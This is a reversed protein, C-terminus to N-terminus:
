IGTKAILNGNKAFVKKETLNGRKWHNSEKWTKTSRQVIRAVDGAPAGNDYVYTIKGINTTIDGYYETVYPYTVPTGDFADIDLLSNSFFLRSRYSGNETGLQYSYNMTYNYFSLSQIFNKNGFGSENLGYKYTKVIPAPSFGDYSRMQSVRLGGTYVTSNDSEQYRNTEFDFETYGGTPFDIRKLVGETMYAPNANRDTAGGIV